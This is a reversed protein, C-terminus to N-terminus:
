KGRKVDALCLFGKQLIEVNRAIKVLFSCQDSTKEVILQKFAQLLYTNQFNVDVKNSQLM